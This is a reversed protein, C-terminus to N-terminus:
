QDQGVCKIDVIGDESVGFLTNQVFVIKSQDDHYAKNKQADQEVIM